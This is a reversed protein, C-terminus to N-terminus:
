EFHKKFKKMNETFNVAKKDSSHIDDEGFILAQLMLFACELGTPYKLLFSYYLSLYEVLKRGWEYLDAPMRETKILVGGIAIIIDNRTEIFTPFKASKIM